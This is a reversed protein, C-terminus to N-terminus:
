EEVEDPDSEQVIKKPPTKKNKKLLEPHHKKLYAYIVDRVIPAGGTSGHCAHEALVAVTILPKDHPAYGVYWGHHRIDFPREECKKYIQDASFSQIQVTGTKGAMQVGPIKWWRATGQDGNAVLRM